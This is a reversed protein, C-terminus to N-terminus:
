RTVRHWAKRTTKWLGHKRIQALGRTTLPPGTASSDSAKKAAAVDAATLKDEGSLSIAARVAAAIEPALVLGQKRRAIEARTREQAARREFAAQPTTPISNSGDTKFNYWGVFTGVASFDAKSRACLRLLFEYDEEWNLGEDFRLEEAPVRHCDILYSHIPAFNEHFLDVLTAGFFPARARGVTLVFSDFVELTMTQVSAFAIGASSSKLRDRLIKHAEPFLIDDYDLFSLYRGKARRIGENILCSRGDAPNAARWDHIDLQAWPTAAFLPALRQRTADMADDGFRQTIIRAVVPRATQAAVSFVARELENLRDPAHFRIIVDATDEQEIM